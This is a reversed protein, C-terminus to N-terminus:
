DQWIPDSSTFGEKPSMLSDLVKEHYFQVFGSGAEIASLKSREAEEQERLAQQALAEEAAREEAERQERLAQQALLAEEAAREEARAKQLLARQAIRGKARRQSTDIKQPGNPFNAGWLEKRIQHTTLGRLAADVVLRRQQPNLARGGRWLTQEVSAVRGNDSSASPRGLTDRNHVRKAASAGREREPAECDDDPNAMSVGGKFVVLSSLLLFLIKRNLM